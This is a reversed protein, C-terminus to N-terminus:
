ILANKHEPYNESFLFDNLKIFDLNYLFTTEKHNSNMSKQVDDPTSLKEWEVGANILMFKTILQRMLNEIEFIIPYAKKSYYLSIDDWLIIPSKMILSISSRVARLLSSFNDILAPNDDLAPDNLQFEVHFFSKDTNAIKGLQIRYGVELNEHTLKENEIKLTANTKLLNNFTDVDACLEAKAEKFILYEVKIM